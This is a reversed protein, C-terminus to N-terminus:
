YDFGRKRLKGRLKRKAHCLRSKVTGMRCGLAEALQRYTMGELFYMVLVERHKSTLENLASLIATRLENAQAHEPPAAALSEQEDRLPRCARSRARLRNRYANILISYLWTYEGSEGRFGDLSRWASVFVDQTLSEAESEDGALLYAARYIRERFREWLREIQSM